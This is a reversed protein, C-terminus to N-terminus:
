RRPNELLYIPRRGAPWFGLYSEQKRVRYQEIRPMFAYGVAWPSVAEAWTEVEMSPSLSVLYRPRIRPIVSHLYWADAEALSRSGPLRLEAVSREYMHWGDFAYGADIFRPDVGAQLLESGMREAARSFAHVDHTGAVGYFAFPLLVLGALAPRWRARSGVSGAFLVVCTPLLILLHRDFTIGITAASYLLQLAVLVGLLRLTQSRPRQEGLSRLCGAVFCCAGLLLIVSVVFGVAPGWLVERAGVILENPSLFGFMTLKNKRLRNWADEWLSTGSEVSDLDIIATQEATTEPAQSM